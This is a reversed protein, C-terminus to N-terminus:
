AQSFEDLSLIFAAPPLSLRALRDDEPFTSANTAYLEHIEKVSMPLSEGLAVPGPIWDHQDRGAAVKRAADSPSFSSGGFVIERYEDARAKRLDERSREHADTLDNRRRNLLGAQIELEQENSQSLRSAIRQVSQKLQERSELDSELVSVCLPRLNEIVHDRLVRLAKTTHSTVLVSQGHALLHGILNAITHSKGTGPPGQVLVSGHRNLQQAIRFQEQNAEKGFLVDRERLIAQNAFEDDQHPTECGVINALADCFNERSEISKIVQGIANGFGKTRSRLFLLPGRGVTPKGCGQDPRGKDLFAGQSAIHNAFGQLFASSDLSLPHYGGNELEQRRAALMSPDVESITQFLSTYLECGVDADIIRFEPTKSDFELQVRQILLPHYISGEPRQWSLLGDAIVLDFLESERELKGHLAYLKEFVAMAQRAPREAVRWKERKQQWLSFAAPRAPNDDFPVTITEGHRDAQNRSVQFRADNDPDDWGAHVWDHIEAPPSPPPTLQPRRVRLLCLPSKAQEGEDTESKKQPLVAQLEVTPHDPLHDLWYHWPYEKVQRVAPNRHDNLAKLYEFVQKIRSACVDKQRTGPESM